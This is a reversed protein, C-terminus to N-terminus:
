KGIRRSVRNERRNLLRQQRRTVYGGNRRAMRRETMRTRRDARHLRAAQGRTIEGERLQTSIRRNQTGLRHNIQERRPHHTNWPTDARAPLVAGLTLASCFLAVAFTSRYTKMRYGPHHSGAPHVM